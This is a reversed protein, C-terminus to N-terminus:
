EPPEVVRKFSPLTRKAPPFGSRGPDTNEDRVTSSRSGAWSVHRRTPKRLTPRPPWVAIKSDLPFPRTAPPVRRTGEELPVRGRELASNNSGGVNFHGNVAGGSAARDSWVAVGTRGCA